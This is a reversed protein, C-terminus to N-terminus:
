VNIVEECAIYENMKENILKIDKLAVKGQAIMSKIDEQDLTALAKCWALLAILAKGSHIFVRHCCSSCRYYPRGKKDFRVSFARDFCFPCIEIM